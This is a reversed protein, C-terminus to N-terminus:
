EGNALREFAPCHGELTVRFNYLPSSPNWCRQGRQHRCTGCCNIEPSIYRDSNQNLLERQTLGRLVLEEGQWRAEILGTDAFQRWRPDATIAEPISITIVTGLETLEGEYNTEPPAPQLFTEGILLEVMTEAAPSHIHYRNQLEELCTLDALYAPSGHVFVVHQPRLNHILQTTGPGDSHQALLYSEVTTPASYKKNVKIDIKEPLLILWPGTEPQCYQELDSTSDTLVICPSKGVISRNEPQLRRVRPRVREDWFLPQHRAFNQVSAPLHPLLELYADCGIAVAGDVWIDLDRGTFHHHSRLLMLLEQGLGLAPTPLIVSCRDSIARNIREALQNEQNRRHPHRSTGYTGEIILVNLDIGRLEELRLGEVLRSNSLFFDGTYLLKYSRHETTYTLLIAVAGPLHGAPFIEAVLGDQLEVPSRLPLAHCLQPIEQPNRDLWNLPLLKSTVESGYIPLNPFAQHLALLGRAHDPHAHTVLVLDAPLPPNGRKASPTVSKQISSIDALGCDLLIRHPGMRVLLCVGEDNHQVSYPFCELETAAEGTEINSYTSLNNRM